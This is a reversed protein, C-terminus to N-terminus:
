NEEKVTNTPLNLNLDDPKTALTEGQEVMKSALSAM